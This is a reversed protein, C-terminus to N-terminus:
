LGIDPVLLIKATPVSNRLEDLWHSVNSFTIADVVSFCVIFCDTSEYGLVRIHEFGEQGATDWLQLM